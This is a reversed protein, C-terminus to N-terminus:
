SEVPPAADPAAGGGKERKGFNRVKEATIFLLPILFIGFVAAAIVIIHEVFRPM